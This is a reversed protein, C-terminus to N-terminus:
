NNPANTKLESIIQRIAPVDFKDDISALMLKQRFPELDSEAKVSVFDDWEWDGCDPADGIFRELMDALEMRSV